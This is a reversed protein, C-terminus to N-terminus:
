IYTSYIYLPQNSTYLHPKYQNIITPKYINIEHFNVPKYRSFLGKSFYIIQLPVVEKLFCGSTCM